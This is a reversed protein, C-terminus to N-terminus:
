DCDLVRRCKRPNWAVSSHPRRSPRKGAPLGESELRYRRLGFARIYNVIREGVVAGLSMTTAGGLTGNSPSNPSIRPWLIGIRAIQAFHSGVLVSVLVSYSCVHFVPLFDHSSLFVGVTLYRHVHVQCPLTRSVAPLPYYYVNVASLLLFLM